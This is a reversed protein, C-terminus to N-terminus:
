TQCEAGPHSTATTAAVDATRGFDGHKQALKAASGRGCGESGHRDVCAGAVQGNREQGTSIRLLRRRQADNHPWFRRARLGGPHLSSAHHQERDSSAAQRTRPHKSLAVRILAHPYSYKAATRRPRVAVWIAVRSEGTSDGLWTSSSQQSRSQGGNPKAPPLMAHYKSLRGCRGFAAM